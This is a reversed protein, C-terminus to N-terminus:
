LLAELLIDTFEEIVARKNLKEPTAEKFSLIKGWCGFTLYKTLPNASQMLM